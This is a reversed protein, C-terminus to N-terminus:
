ELVRFWFGGVSMVGGKIVLLDLRYNAPALASGITIFASIEGSVPDGGLYWQYSDVPESTSATVTMDTGLPISASQGTFSITITNNIDTGIALNINGVKYVVVRQQITFNGLAATVYGAGECGTTDLIGDQDIIGIVPDATWFPLVLVPNGFDDYGLADFHYLTGEVVQVDGTIPLSNEDLISLNALEGNYINIAASASELGFGASLTGTGSKTAHFLIGSASHNTLEGISNSVSFSEPIFNFNASQNDRGRVTFYREFGSAIDQSAPNINITGATYTRTINLSRTTSTTVAGLNDTATVYYEFDNGTGIDTATLFSAPIIYGYTDLINPRVERAMVAEQWSGPGPLLKRYFLRAGAIAGGDDYDRATTRIYIPAGVRIPNPIPNQLAVIPPNNGPLKAKAMPLYITFHEIQATIRSDNISVGSNVAVYANLETDYYYVAMTKPDFGRAALAASDYNIELVAPISIDFQTGEPTLEYAQGFPYLGDAEASPANSIRTIKITTTKDLSYEPITLTVEDNLKVTGGTDAKIEAIGTNDEGKGPGDKSCATLIMATAITISIILSHIKLNMKMFGGRPVM